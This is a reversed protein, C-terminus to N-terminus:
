SVEISTVGLPYHSSNIFNCFFPFYFLPHPELALETRQETTVLAGAVGEAWGISLQM